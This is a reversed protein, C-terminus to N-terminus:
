SENEAGNTERSVTCKVSYISSSSQLNRAYVFYIYTHIYVISFYDQSLTSLATALILCVSASVETM